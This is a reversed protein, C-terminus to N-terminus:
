GQGKEGTGSNTDRIREIDRTFQWACYAVGAAVHIFMLATTVICHGALLAVQIDRMRWGSKM